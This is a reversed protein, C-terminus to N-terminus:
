VAPGGGPVIGDGTEPPQCSFPVATKFAAADGGFRASVGAVFQSAPEANYGVGTAPAPMVADNSTNRPDPLPASPSVNVSASALTVLGVASPTFPPPSPNEPIVPIATDNSVQFFELSGDFLKTPM